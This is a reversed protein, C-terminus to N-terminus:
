TRGDSVQQTASGSGNSAPQQRILKDILSMWNRVMMRKDFLAVARDRSGKAFTERLAKDTLIQDLAAAFVDPDGASVVRGTEGDVVADTCGDVDTSVPCCGSAMAELLTLPLGEWLSSLAFVDFAKLTKAPDDQWPLIKVQESLGAAAIAQAVEDKLRGEGAFVFQVDPHKAVVTQLAKVYDLPAKQPEMRGMWGVVLRSPDLGIASVAADRDPPPAFREVDIGTRIASVRDKPNLRFKITTERAQETLTVIHGGIKSVLYDLSWYIPAKWGQVRRLFPMSAQCYIVPCGTRRGVIRGIFGAKSGHCIIVDPLTQRTVDTIQQLVKFDGVPDISYRAMAMPEASLGLDRLKNAYEPAEDSLCITHSVYGEAKLEALLMRNYLAVGGTSKTIALVKIGTM